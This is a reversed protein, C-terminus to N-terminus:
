RHNTQHEHNVGRGIIINVAEGFGKTGGRAYAVLKEAFRVPRQVTEVTNQVTKNVKRYVIFAAVSGGIIIITLLSYLIIILLDRITTIDM